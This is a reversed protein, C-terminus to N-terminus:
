GTLWRRSKEYVVYALCNQPVTKILAPTLGKMLGTHGLQKNGNMVRTVLTSFPHTATQSCISSVSAIALLTPIPPAVSPDVFYKKATESVVLNLGATPIKSFMSLTFGSWLNRVLPWSYQFNRDTAIRTSVVDFPHTVFNSACASVCGSVFVRSNNWESPQGGFWQKMFEYTYFRVLTEPMFKTAGIGAGRWHQRWEFFPNTTQLGGMRQNMQMMLKIRELPFLITKSTTKALATSFLHILVRNNSPAPPLVCTELDLTTAQKWNMFTQRINHIPLMVLVRSWEEFSIKGDGNQDYVGLFQKVYQEDFEINMQVFMQRLEVIDMFGDGNTDYQDFMIKLQKKQEIVFQEFEIKSVVGDHNTDVSKIWEIVDRDTHPLNNEVLLKQIEKVSLIGGDSNENSKCDSPIPLNSQSLHNSRFKSDNMKM